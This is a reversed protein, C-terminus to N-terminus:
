NAFTVLGWLFEGMSPAVKVEVGHKKCVQRFKPYLARLHMASVSPIVHHLAQTNLGGSVHGWFASETAFDKSTAVQREAFSLKTREEETLFCEEQLHTVQTFFVFLYSAIVFTSMQIWLGKLFGHYKGAVCFYLIQMGLEIIIEWKLTARHHKIAPIRDYMSHDILPDVQGFILGYPVIFNLHIIPTACMYLIRIGHLVPNLTTRGKSRGHEFSILPEWHYLDVDVEENTHVHHSMVHQIHWCCASVGYPFAARSFLRNLWPSNVFANHSADHMVNGTLYWSLIGILPTTWTADRVLLLYICFWMASWALFCYGIHGWSMKHAGKGKGKFHDRVMNKIDEYFPDSYVIEQNPSTAAAVAAPEVAGGASSATSGEDEDAVSTATGDSDADGGAVADPEAKMGKPVDAVSERIEYKALMRLLVNRDLFVHYSEFLGTCDSGKAARLVWKGGPHVDYFSRLDYKKGHILWENPVGDESPFSLRGQWWQPLLVTFPSLFLAVLIISWYPLFVWYLPSLNELGVEICQWGLRLLDGLILM